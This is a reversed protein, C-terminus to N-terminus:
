DRFYIGVRRRRLRAWTLLILDFPTAASSASEVYIADVSGMGERALWMVGAKARSLRAGSITQVDAVTALAKEMQRIRVKPASDQAAPDYMGYLLLRPRITRREPLESRGTSGVRWATTTLM